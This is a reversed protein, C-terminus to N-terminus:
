RSREGPGVVGNQDSSGEVRDAGCEAGQVDGNDSSWLRRYRESSPANLLELTRCNSLEPTRTNAPGRHAPVTSRKERAKRNKRVRTREFGRVNKAKGGTDGGGSEHPMQQGGKRM